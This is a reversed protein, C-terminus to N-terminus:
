SGSFHVLLRAALCPCTGLPFHVPAYLFHVTEPGNTLPSPTHSCSPHSHGLLRGTSRPDPEQPGPPIASAPNRHAPPWMTTPTNLLGHTGSSDGNSQVASHTQPCAHWYPQTLMLACTHSQSCMQTHACRAGTDPSEGRHGAFSVTHVDTHLCM